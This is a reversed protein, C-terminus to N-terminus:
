LTGQDEAWQEAADNLLTASRSSVLYQEALELAKNRAADVAVNVDDEDSGAADWQLGYDEGEIGIPAGQWAYRQHPADERVLQVAIVPVARCAGSGDAADSNITVSYRLVANRNYPIHEQARYVRLFKAM